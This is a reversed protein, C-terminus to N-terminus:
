EVRPGKSPDDPPTDSPAAEDKPPDAAPPPASKRTTGFLEKEITSAVNEVARGVERAGDVVM